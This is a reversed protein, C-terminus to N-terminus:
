TIPLIDSPQKPFLVPLIPKLEDDVLCDPFAFKLDDIDRYGFLLQIFTLGPFSAKGYDSTSPQWNEIEVLRNKQFKLNLGTRYFNLKAEGSHPSLFSEALRKELVPAIHFLFGTLDPVRLYWAYPRRKQPLRGEAIKYAPHNEGLWFGFHNMTKSEQAALTEGAQWLYRIVAPM